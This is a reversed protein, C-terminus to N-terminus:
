PRKPEAGMTFVLTGGGALQEHRVFPRPLPAGDLTVSQVYRNKPSLERAVVELQKGGALHIVARPFQPV